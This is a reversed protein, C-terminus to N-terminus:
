NRTTGYVPRKDNTVPFSTIYRKVIWKERYIFYFNTGVRERYVVLISKNISELSVLEKSNWIFYSDHSVVLNSTGYREM